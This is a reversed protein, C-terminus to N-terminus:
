SRANTPFITYCWRLEESASLEFFVKTIPTNAKRARSLRHPDVASLSRTNYEAGISLIAAFSETILKRVPSVYDLQDDNAYKYFVEEDGPLSVINLVHAGAKVAEEFVMLALEHALPNSRLAFQDGPKLELSYHVLIKALKSLRQDPM